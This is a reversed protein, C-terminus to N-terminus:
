MLSSNEDLNLLTLLHTGFPRRQVFAYSLMKTNCSFVKQDLLHGM